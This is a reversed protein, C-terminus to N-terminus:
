KIKVHKWLWVFLLTALYSGAFAMIVLMLATLLNFSLVTYLNGIFHLPFIWNLYMQGVGLAVSLAWFAHMAAVFLSVVLAPKNCHCKKFMNDGGKV